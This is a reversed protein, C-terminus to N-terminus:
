AFKFASVRAGMLDGRFDATAAGCQAAGAVQLCPVCPTVQGLRMRISVMCRESRMASTLVCAQMTRPVQMNIACHCM